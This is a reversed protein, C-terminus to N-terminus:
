EREEVNLLGRFDSAMSKRGNNFSENLAEAVREAEDERKFGVGLLNFAIPRIEYHGDYRVVHAKFM